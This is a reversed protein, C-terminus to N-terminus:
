KMIKMYDYTPQLKLFGVLMQNKKKKFVILVNYIPNKSAYSM